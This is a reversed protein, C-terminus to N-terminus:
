DAVCVEWEIDEFEGRKLAQSNMQVEAAPEFIGAAASGSSTLGNAVKDIIAQLLASINSRLEDETFNIRGVAILPMSLMSDSKESVVASEGARVVGNRDGRWNVSGQAEKFAQQVDSASNVVTGRKANPMLGKPGLSRALAKSVRPLLASTSLVKSFNLGRAAGTGDVVDQIFEVGGMVINGKFSPSSEQIVRVTDAVESGDDAFILFKESKVRAEKPLALRGRLANAQNTPVSTVIHLEYANLPRTVEVAQFIKTAEELNTYTIVKKKTPGLRREREARKANKVANKGKGPPSKGCVPASTTFLRSTSALSSTSPFRWLSATSLASRAVAM